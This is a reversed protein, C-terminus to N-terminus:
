RKRGVGYAVVGVGLALLGGAVLPPIDFRERVEASAQIPGVDLIQERDTYPIGGFYLAVGGLIAIAIGLLRIRM